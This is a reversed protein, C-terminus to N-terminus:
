SFISSNLMIMDLFTHVPGQWFNDAIKSFQIGNDALYFFPTQGFIDGCSSVARRIEQKAFKKSSFQHSKYDLELSM